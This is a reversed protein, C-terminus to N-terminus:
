PLLLVRGASAQGAVDIRLFYVGPAAARRRADRGDWRALHVGASRPGQDLSAVSRGTVDLIHLRPQGAEPLRYWLQATRGAVMPNPRVALIALTGPSDTGGPVAVVDSLVELGDMEFGPYMGAM